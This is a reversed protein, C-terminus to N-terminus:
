GGLISVLGTIDHINELNGIQYIAGEIHDPPLIYRSCYLFKAELETIDLPVESTGQAFEVTTKLIQGSILKISVQTARPTSPNVDSNEIIQIKSMCENIEEDYFYGPTFQEILPQGYILTSASIFPISNRLEFETRPPVPKLEQISRSPLLIQMTEVEKYDFDYLQLLQLIAEICEHSTAPCPYLKLSLGNQELLSDSALTRLINNHTGADLGLKQLYYEFTEVSFDDINFQKSVTLGATITNMAIKGSTFLDISSRKDSMTPDLTDLLLCLGQQFQQDNLKLLLGAALLGGLSVCAYFNSRTQEILHSTYEIGLLYARLVEKGTYGNAEGLATVIPFIVSSLSHHSDPIEEAYDLISIIASNGFAAYIPSTRVGMGILTCKGISGMEQVLSSISVAQQQSAGALGAASANLMSHKGMEISKDSLAEFPINQELFTLGLHEM